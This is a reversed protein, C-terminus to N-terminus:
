PGTYIVYICFIHFFYYDMTLQTWTVCVSQSMNWLTGINNQFIGVTFFDRITLLYM